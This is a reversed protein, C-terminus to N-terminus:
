IKTTENLFSSPVPNRTLELLTKCLIKFDIPKSIHANMGAASTASLDEAFANVTVAIIPITKADIRQMRRIAASAACGDMEPMQVDMLIVHFEEEKSQQFLEVAEKGNWAKVVEAGYMKLLECAIEMNIENDEALLIKKGKLFEEEEHLKEKIKKQKEKATSEKREVGKFPLTMTFTSGKGLTSEVTIEGNMQSIINKTIPMGLGTGAIHRTGFRTEREYPIFIKNLFEKSMGIGTDKVIIQYRTYEKQELERVTVFICDGAATFKVANSLLNNLIQTLRFADGYVEKTQIELKM